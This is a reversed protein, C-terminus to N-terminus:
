GAKSPISLIGQATFSVETDSVTANTLPDFDPRVGAVLMITPQLNAVLPVSGSVGAEVLFEAVSWGKMM